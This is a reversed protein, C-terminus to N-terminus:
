RRRRWLLTPLVVLFLSLLGALEPRGAFSCGGTNRGPTPAAQDPRLACITTSDAAEICDANSPCLNVQNCRQSCYKGMVQKDEVCIKSVCDGLGVCPAGFQGPLPTTGGSDPQPGVGLDPIPPPTAGSKVTVSVTAQGQNNAADFAIATIQHAGAQLVIAFQFPASSKSGLLKGDALLDVRVVGLNDTAQVTVTSQPPIESSAPPSQIVVTPPTIDKGGGTDPKPTV